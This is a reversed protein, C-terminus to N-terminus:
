LELCMGALKCIQCKCLLMIAVAVAGTQMSANDGGGGAGTQMAPDWVGQSGDSSTYPTAGGSGSNGSNGSPNSQTSRTSSTANGIPPYGVKATNLYANPLQMLNAGTNATSTAANQSLATAQNAQNLFNAAIGPLQVGYQLAENQLGLATSEDARVSQTGAGAAAAATATRNAAELDAYRGSSPDIGYGQLNSSRPLGPRM